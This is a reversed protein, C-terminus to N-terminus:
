EPVGQEDQLSRLRCALLGVLHRQIHKPWGSWRDCAVAAEVVIDIEGALDHGPGLRSMLSGFSDRWGAEVEEAALSRPEPRRREVTTVTPGSAATRRHRTVVPSGGASGRSSLLDGMPTQSRSQAPGTLAIHGGAQRWRSLLKAIQGDLRTLAHEIAPRHDPGDTLDLLAQLQGREVLLHDLDAQVSATAAGLATSTTPEHM